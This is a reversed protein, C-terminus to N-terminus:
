TLRAWFARWAWGRAANKQFRASTRALQGVRAFCEAAESKRGMSKLVSGRRYASEPNDGHNHQFRDLASLAEDSKGSAQLAEALRLQVAGYAHEEDARAARALEPVAEKERGSELLACGLRYAWEASQPDGAAARRLPEVAARPRGSTLLLLGLKGQNHPTDVASLDRERNKLRRRDVADSALKSVIVSCLIAAIWFGFFPIQFLPGLFPVFRLGQLVLMVLAFFGILRLV